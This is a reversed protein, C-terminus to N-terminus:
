STINLTGLNTNVTTSWGGFAYEPTSLVAGVTTEVNAELNFFGRKYDYRETSREIFDMEWFNEAITESVFEQFGSFDRPYDELYDNDRMNEIVENAFGPTTILEAVTDAFGTEQMVEEEYGDWAHIVDGGTEYKLTIKDENKLGTAKLKQHFSM